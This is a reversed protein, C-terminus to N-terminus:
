SELGNTKSLYPIGFFDIADQAFRDAFGPQPFFWVISEADYQLVGLANSNFLMSFVKHPETDGCEVFIRNKLSGVDIQYGLYSVEECTQIGKSKLHAEVWYKMGRHEASEITRGAGVLSQLRTINPPTSIFESDVSLFGEVVAELLLKLAIQDSPSPWRFCFFLRQFEFASAKGGQRIKALIEEVPLPEPPGVRLQGSFAMENLIAHKFGAM